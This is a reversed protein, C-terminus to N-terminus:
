DYRTAEVVAEGQTKSIDLIQPSLTTDDNGILGNATPTKFESGLVGLRDFSALDALRCKAPQHTTRSSGFSSLGLIRNRNPLADSKKYFRRPVRSLVAGLMM